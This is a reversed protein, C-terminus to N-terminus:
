YDEYFCDPYEEPIDKISITIKSSSIGFKNILRDILLKIDDASKFQEIEIDLMDVIDSCDVGEIFIKAGNSLRVFGNFVYEDPKMKKVEM